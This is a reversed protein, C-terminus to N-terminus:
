DERMMFCEGNQKNSIRKSENILKFACGAPIIAPEVLSPAEMESRRLLSEATTFSVTAPLLPSNEIWFM